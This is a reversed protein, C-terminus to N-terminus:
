IRTRHLWGCTAVLMMLILLVATTSLWAIAVSRNTEETVRVQTAEAITTVRRFAFNQFAANLTALAEVTAVGSTSDFQLDVKALTNRPAEGIFRANYDANAACLANSDVSAIGKYAEVAARCLLRPMASAAAGTEYADVLSVSLVTPM